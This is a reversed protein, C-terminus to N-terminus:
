IPMVEAPFASESIMASIIFACAARWAAAVEPTLAEGFFDRLAADFAAGMTTYQASRVGYERHRHGLQALVPRVADLDWLGDVVLHLTTMLKGRQPGLDIPFMRHLAPDLAFLHRYFTAAFADYHSPYIQEFSQQILVIQEPTM